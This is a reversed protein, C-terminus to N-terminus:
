RDRLESLNPHSEFFSAYRAKSSVFTIKKGFNGPTKLHITIIQLFLFTSEELKEINHYPYRYHKFYDTVYIYLEDMEVRKLRMLTLYFMLVGSLYFFLAGIRFPVKPINGFYEFDYVFVAVTFAGFFVMWFIPVFIKLFLTANTSVREM